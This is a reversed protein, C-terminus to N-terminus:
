SVVPFSSFGCTTLGRGSDTEIQISPSAFESPQLGGCGYSHGTQRSERELWEADDALLNWTREAVYHRNLRDETPIM